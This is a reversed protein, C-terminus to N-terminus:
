IQCDTPSQLCRVSAFELLLNFSIKIYQSHLVSSYEGRTQKQKPAQCGIPSILVLAILCMSALQLKMVTYKTLHMKINSCPRM